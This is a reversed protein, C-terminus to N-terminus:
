WLHLNVAVTAHWFDATRDVSYRTSVDSVADVDLIVYRVDASVTVKKAIRGTLGAGLQLGVKHETVTDFANSGLGTARVWYYGGGAALYPQLPTKTFFFVQASAQVPLERLRLVTEGGAEVDEVRYTVLGELGLGGTLRARIQLGGTFGGSGGFAPRTMAVHVGVGLGPDSYSQAAAAAPLLVLAGAIVAARMGRM